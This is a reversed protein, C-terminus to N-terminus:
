TATHVEVALVTSAIAALVAGRGKCELRVQPPVLATYVLFQVCDFGEVAGVRSTRNRLLLKRSSVIKFPVHSATPIALCLLSVSLVNIHVDRVLELRAVACLCVQTVSLM